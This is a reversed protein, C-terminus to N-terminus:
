PGRRLGGVSSSSSWSSTTAITPPTGGSASNGSCLRVKDTGQLYKLGGESATCCVTHDSQPIQTTAHHVAAKHAVSPRDSCQLEVINIKDSTALIAADSYTDEKGMGLVVKVVLSVHVELNPIEASTADVVGKSIVLGNGGHGEVGAADDTGCALVDDLYIVLSFTSLPVTTGTNVDLFAWRPSWGNLPDLDLVAVHDFAAPVTDNAHPRTSLPMSSSLRSQARYFQVLSPDGITHVVKLTHIYSKKEDRPAKPSATEWKGKLTPEM